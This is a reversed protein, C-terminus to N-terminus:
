SYVHNEMIYERVKKDLGPIVLKGAQINERIHTASIAIPKIEEFYVYGATHEYLTKKDMTQRQALVTKLWETKSLDTLPRSVIILHALDFIKEWAHWANFHAFADFGLILYFSTEKFQERLQMLTDVTYSINQRKIEIDNVLMQAHNQLALRVMELRHAPSAIPQDRHPPQFCPILEVHELKFTKLVHDAITIHGEHIPDFTGGLIGIRPNQNNM